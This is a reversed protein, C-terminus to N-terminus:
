VTYIFTLNKDFPKSAVNEIKKSNCESGAAHMAPWLM